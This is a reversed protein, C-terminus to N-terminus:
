RVYVAGDVYSEDIFVGRSGWGDLVIVTSYNNASTAFLSLDSPMSNPTVGYYTRKGYGVVWHEKYKRHGTLGVVAPKDASYYSQRYVPKGFGRDNLYRDLGDILASYVSGRTYPEIYEKLNNILTVGDSSEWYSPVYSDNYVKDYYMLLMASATSGCRGDPNYSYNPISWYSTVYKDSYNAGM